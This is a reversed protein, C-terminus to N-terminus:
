APITESAHQIALDCGTLYAGAEPGTILNGNIHAVRQRDFAWWNGVPIGLRNAERHPMFLIKEGARHHWPAGWQRWLQYSTPQDDLLVVRSITVQRTMEQVRDLWAQWEPWKLPPLPDGALWRQYADLEGDQPGQQWELRFAEQRFEIGCIVYGTM